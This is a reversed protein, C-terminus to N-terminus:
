RQALKKKQVEVAARAQSAFPTQPYRSLLKAYLQISLVPEGAEGAKAAADLLLREQPAVASAAVTAVKPAPPAAAPALPSTQAIFSALRAESAEQRQRWQRRARGILWVTAALIALLVFWVIGKMRFTYRAICVSSASKMRSVRSPRSASAIRRL